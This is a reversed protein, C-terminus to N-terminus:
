YTDAHTVKSEAKEFLMTVVKIRNDLDATPELTIFAGQEERESM